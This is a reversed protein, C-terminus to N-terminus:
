KNYDPLLDLLQEMVSEQQLLPLTSVWEIDVKGWSHYPYLRIFDREVLMNANFDEHEELVMAVDPFLHPEHGLITWHEHSFCIYWDTYMPTWVMHNKIVKTTKQVYKYLKWEVECICGYELDKRGFRRIFQLQLETYMPNYNLM